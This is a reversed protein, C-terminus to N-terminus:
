TKVGVFLERSERAVLSEGAVRAWIPFSRCVTAVATRASALAGILLSFQTNTNTNGASHCVIIRAGFYRYWQQPQGM